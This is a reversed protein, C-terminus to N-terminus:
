LFSPAGGEPPAGSNVRTSSRSLGQDKTGSGLDLMLMMLFVSDVMFLAPFIESIADSINCVSNHKESLPQLVNHAENARGGRRDELM